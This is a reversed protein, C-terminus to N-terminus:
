EGQAMDAINKAEALLRMSRAAQRLLQAFEQKADPSAGTLEFYNLEFVEITIVYCRVPGLMPLKVVRTGDGAAGKIALAQVARLAACVDAVPYGSCVESRFVDAFIFYECQKVARGGASPMSPRAANYQEMTRLPAGEEDLLLRVGPVGGPPVDFGEVDHWPVFHPANQELYHRVQRVIAATHISPREAADCADGAPPNQLTNLAKELAGVAANRHMEAQSLLGKAKTEKM